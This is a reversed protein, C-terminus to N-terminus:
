ILAARLADPLTRKTNTKDLLVVVASGTTTVAGDVFTAYEMTFSSSRMAVTRTTNIYTAGRMVEANYDVTVTKIVFKPDPGALEYLRLHELYHVRLTEYWRLYQVNNVHNLADLEGFRVRDAMGFAWPEPIAAARLQDANLVRVFPTM